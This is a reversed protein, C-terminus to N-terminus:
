PMAVADVLDVQLFQGDFAAPAPAIGPVVIPAGGMDLNRTSCANDDVHAITVTAGAAITVTQEYDIATCYPVESAGANLIYTHDPDSIELRVENWTDAAPMGGDNFLGDTTGGDVQVESVVGRFSLTVQYLVGAEAAVFTGSASVENETRCSPDNCGDDTGM